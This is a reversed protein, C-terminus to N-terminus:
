LGNLPQDHLGARDIKGEGAKKLGSYGIAAKVMARAWGMNGHLDNLHSYTAVVNKYLVGDRHGDYGYGRRCNFITTLAQPEAAFSYHFEHGRITKGVEFFPNEKDVELLTYGHWRPRKSLGFSVPLAGVMPFTRGNYTISQGLYMAGGCEAWVPMGEEVAEKVSRIFRTNDALAKANTEPFGGGIYLASIDPLSSDGIASVEVLEAGQKKLQEINEPYYFQFAADRVIGIRAVSKKTIPSHSGPTSVPAAISAGAVEELAKLDVHKEIIDATRALSEASSPHEGPMVLGLYREPFPHDDLRPIAGLVPLGCIETITARLMGEHRQGGVKNLIVGRIDVDPDMKQCGLVIAAATRTIKTADLVLIVPANILKALEATSYSGTEDMGDYLGRNGEIVSIAGRAQHESFSRAVSEAGNMYVDLTYCPSGAALSLWAADVFDPGKKFPIVKEGRRRWAAALGLAVVTKGSSGRVGAILIKKEM